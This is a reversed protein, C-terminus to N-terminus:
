ARSVELTGIGAEVVLDVPPTTPSTSGPLQTILTRDRGDVVPLGDLDIEGLGVNATVDVNMDAPVIVKLDGVGVYASIPETLVTGAPLRRLDLVALGVSLNHPALAEAASNPTWTRDGITANTGIRLNSPIIAVLATVLLLPLALSILWKAHGAFAGIILGIGLIGLGASMIVVVPVDALGAIDMSALVGTVMIAVSLVALGLYSRQRPPAPPPPPTPVYGPYGGGSGGYAFGTALTEPVTTATALETTSSAPHETGPSAASGAGAIAGTTDPKRNLLWLITGGVVLLLLLSGGGFTDWPGSSSIWGLLILAAIVAM